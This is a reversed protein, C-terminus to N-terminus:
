MRKLKHLANSWRTIDTVKVVRQSGKRSSCNICFLGDIMAVVYKYAPSGDFLFRFHKERKKIMCKHEESRLM